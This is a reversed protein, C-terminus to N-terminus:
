ELRRTLWWIFVGLGLWSLAAEIINLLKGSGVAYFEGHGINIASEISYLITDFYTIKGQASTILDWQYYIYPFVVLIMLFLVIIFYLFGSGSLWEAIARFYSRNHFYYRMLASREKRKFEEAETLNGAEMLNSKILRYSNALYRYAESKKEVGLYLEEMRKLGRKILERHSVGGWEPPAHEITGYARIFNLIAKRYLKAPWDPYKKGDKTQEAKEAAKLFCRYAAKCDAADRLHKAAWGYAWAQKHIPDVQKEWLYPTTAHIHYVLPFQYWKEYVGQVDGNRLMKLWKECEEKFNPELMKGIAEWLAPVQRFEQARDFATAAYYFCEVANDIDGNKVLELGEELYRKGEAAHDVSLTM